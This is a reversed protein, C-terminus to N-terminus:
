LRASPDALVVPDGQIITLKGRPLYPYWLWAVEETQIENMSILKLNPKLQEVGKRIRSDEQKSPLEKKKTKM